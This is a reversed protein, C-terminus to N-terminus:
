DKFTYRIARRRKDGSARRKSAKSRVVSQVGFTGSPMRHVERGVTGFTIRGTVDQASAAHIMAAIVGYYKQWDEYKVKRGLVPMLDVYNKGVRVVRFRVERRAAAVVKMLQPHGKVVTRKKAKRKKVTPKRVPPPVAVPKEVRPPVVTVPTEPASPATLPGIRGLIFLAMCTAALIILRTM